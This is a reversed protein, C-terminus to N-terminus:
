YGRNNYRGSDFSMAKQATNKVTNNYHLNNEDFLQAKVAGKKTDLIYVVTHNTFLTSREVVLEYRGAGGVSWLVFLVAAMFLIITTLWKNVPDM